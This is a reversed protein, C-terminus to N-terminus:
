MDENKVIIKNKYSVIILRAATDKNINNSLLYEVLSNLTLPLDAEEVMDAINRLYGLNNRINRSLKPSDKLKEIQKKDIQLYAKLDVKFGNAVLIDNIDKVGIEYIMVPNTIRKEFKKEIDIHAEEVQEFIIMPIPKKSIIIMDSVDARHSTISIGQREMTEFGKASQHLESLFTSIATTLSSILSLDLSDEGEFTVNYFPIGTESNKFIISQISMIAELEIGATEIEQTVRQNIVKRSKLQRSVIIVLVILSIVIILIIIWNEEVFVQALGILDFIGFSTLEITPLATTPVTSSIATIYGYGVISATIGTIEFMGATESRSFVISAVGNQDTIATRTIQSTVGQENLYTIIFTVEVGVVPGSRGSTVESLGLAQESATNNYSVRAIIDFPENQILVSNHDVEIKVSHALVQVLYSSTHNEHLSKSFEFVWMYQGSSLLTYNLILTFWGSEDSVAIFGYEDIKTNPAIGEVDIAYLSANVSAESVGRQSVFTTWQAEDLEDIDGEFIVETLVLEPPENTEVLWAPKVIVIVTNVASNESTDFITIEFVYVGPTITGINYNIEDVWIGTAVLTGNLRIEYTGSEYDEGEWTLIVSTENDFMRFDSPVSVFIPNTEDFVDVIVTNTVFNGGLDYVIITFNYTNVSLTSVGFQINNGTWNGSEILEGNRYISYNKPNLDSPTWLIFHQAPNGDGIEYSIDNPQNILPTTTDQIILLHQLILFNGYLDYVIITINWSGLQQNHIEFIIQSDNTWTGTRNSVGNVFIEYNDPYNDTVNWTISTLSNASEVIQPEPYIPFDTKIVPNTGDFVTILLTIILRNEGDDILVITFNWVGLALMEPIFYIIPVSSQWSGSVLLTDNRYLWYNSPTVDTANWSLTTGQVDFEEIETTANIYRTGNILVPDSTQIQEDDVDLSILTPPFDDAIIVIHTLTAFNGSTDFVLITVNYTGLQTNNLNYSILSNNTWTNTEVTVNNVIIHYEFPHNDTLTWIITTNGEDSEVEISEPFESIIVPDTGDYVTILITIILSNNGKDTFVITINWLGLVLPNEIFYSIPVGSLWTKNDIEQDTDNIYLTYYDPNADTVNWRIETGVVQYEEISINFEDEICGDFEASCVELVDLEPTIGDYVTILLIIVLQNGSEDVFIATFNWVGITLPSNITYNIAIGSSWSNSTLLTSNRYLYYVDPNTDTVNWRIETGVVQYEEISINFEDEICGNFEVSCVELTELAPPATDIVHVLTVDKLINGYKDQFVITFNYTGVSLGDINLTIEVGSIWNQQDHEALTVNNFFITYNAANVDIATWNIWNGTSHEEYTIETLNPSKNTLEPLTRDIIVTIEDTAINGSTDNVSMTYIWTGDTQSSVDVFIPNENNWTGSQHLTGNITLSYMNPHNDFFSWEIESLNNEVTITLNGPSEVLDPDKEDIVTLIVLDSNQNGDEDQVLLVFHYVGISLGDVGLSYTINVDNSWIGTDVVTSNRTITYNDPFHDFVEWTLLYNESEEENITADVPGSIIPLTSDIVTFNFVHIIQPIDSDQRFDDLAWTINFQNSSGRIYRSNGSFSFNYTPNIYSIEFDTALVLEIWDYGNDSYQISEVIVQNNSDFIQNGDILGTLNLPTMEFNFNESYEVVDMTINTGARYFVNMDFFISQNYPGDSFTINLEYQIPRVPFSESINLNLEALHIYRNNGSDFSEFNLNQSGLDWTLVGPNTWDSNHSRDLTAVRVELLDAELVNFELDNVNELVTVPFVKMPVAVSGAATGNFWRFQFSYVGTPIDPDLLKQFVLSNNWSYEDSYNDLIEGTQTRLSANVMGGVDFLDGITSNGLILDGMEVDPTLVGMFATDNAQWNSSDVDFVFTEPTFNFFLNETQATFTYNGDGISSDIFITQIDNSSAITYNDNLTLLENEYFFQISTFSSPVEIYNTTNINSIFTQNLYILWDVSENTPSETYTATTALPDSAFSTFTINFLISYEPLLSSNYYIRFDLSDTSSTKNIYRGDEDVIVGEEEIPSAVRVESKFADYIFSANYKIALDYNQPSGWHDQNEPPTSSSSNFYTPETSTQNVGFNWADSETQYIIIFFYGVTSNQFTNDSSIQAPQDFHFTLSGSTTSPLEQLKSKVLKDPIILGDSSRETANWIEGIVQHTNGAFVVHLSFNYLIIKSVTADFPIAQAYVRTDGLQRNDDSNTFIIEQENDTYLSNIIFEVGDTKGVSDIIPVTVNSNNELSDFNRTYTENYIFDFPQDSQKIETLISPSFHSSMSNIGTRSGVYNVRYDIQNNSSSDKITPSSKSNLKTIGNNLDLEFSNNTIEKDDIDPTFAYFLGSILLLLLLSNKLYYTKLGIIKLEIM